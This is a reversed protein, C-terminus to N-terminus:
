ASPSHGRAERVRVDDAGAGVCRVRAIPSRTPTSTTEMMVPPNTTDRMSWDSIRRGLLLRREDRVDGSSLVGSM